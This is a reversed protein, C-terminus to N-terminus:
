GFVSALLVVAVLAVDTWGLSRSAGGTTPVACDKTVDDSPRLLAVEAHFIGYDFTQTGHYGAIDVEPFREACMDRIAILIKADDATSISTRNFCLECRGALHTELDVHELVPVPDYVYQDRKYHLKGDVMVINAPSGDSNMIATKTDYETEIEGVIVEPALIEEFNIVDTYPSKYHHQFGTALKILECLKPNSSFHELMLAINKASFLDFLLLSRNPRFAAVGEGNASRIGTKWNAGKEAYVRATELSGFWAPKDEELETTNCDSGPVGRYLVDDPSIEYLDLDSSAQSVRGLTEGSYEGSGVVLHAIPRVKDKDTDKFNDDLFYPVTDYRGKAWKILM